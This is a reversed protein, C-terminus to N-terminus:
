KAVSRRIAPYLAALSLGSMLLDIGFLVGLAWAAIDSWTWFILGAIALSVGGSTIGWRRRSPQEDQFAAFIEIVAEALLYAGLILTVTLMGERPSFLLLIGVVFSLIALMASGSIRWLRRMSFISWGHVVGRSILLWGILLEIAVTTVHPLIIAVIGLAMLVVGLAPIWRPDHTLRRPVAPSPDSLPVTDENM